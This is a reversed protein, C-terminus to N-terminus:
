FADVILLGRHKGQKRIEDRLVRYYDKKGTMHNLFMEYMQPHHILSKQIIEGIGPKLHLSDVWIEKAGSQQFIDLLSPIDELTVTPYIPGFFISTPVGAEACTLLTKLRDEISSSNPELVKRQEDSGTGISMMVQADTFKQLVDLDRTVLRSKTQIHVPFDVQLLQELCYRTLQYTHELPQYPDTVTSIGVVGPKKTKLEKALITPINAKLELTNDWQDQNM